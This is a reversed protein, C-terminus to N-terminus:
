YPSVNSITRICDKRLPTDTFIARILDVVETKTFGCRHLEGSEWDSTISKLPLDLLKQSSCVLPIVLYLLTSSVKGALKRIKRLSPILDDVSDKPSYDDEEPKKNEFVVASVLSDLLPSVGELMLQILRQLELTEEAAMDDLLLIEVTIRSLVSELVACMSKKYTSPLLLPEWIIRVKELVFVVQDISFKASEFQQMQHSNQFGGAGDIAEKLNLIVLQIQRQLIEEAMVYYRPAMDVFVAHEKISTPFDPRYQFALGLIEQSLYLCDNHMLVAVQNFNDLKRELKVPVVAEYLLIADRAARYFEPAVKPSSLCVDKLTQHVLAMLQSAAKSVLCRESMFLLHVLRDIHEAAVGAGNTSQSSKRMFEQPISFDCHLLLDRAKALIETRKRSAFHLEVNESFNSLKLDSQDFASIFKLEKLANEFESSNKVIKQFGVLKSADDPVAKSLFNSIILEAIRPWTLRGFCQVWSEKELCIFKSIFKVVQLISSYITQGDVDETKLDSSPIIELVAEEKVDGALSTATGCNMAPTIVFKFMKDAVKALGYDLIGLVEMAQLVARLEVGELEDVSLRSRVRVRCPELELQVAKEMLKVLMGQMEEFCSLWDKRLLGYVLPDGAEEDGIRLVDKLVKVEEAAMLLRGHKMGEKAGKLKDSIEVIANVLQLLEKKVKAERLKRKLEELIERIEVDVPTDSLLTSLDSVKRDIEVTRSAADSCLQFLSSFEGHHALLYSQVKSKIQLSHSELRTILLRLDPASLPCTQDALDGASLLDRVNISDFLADM